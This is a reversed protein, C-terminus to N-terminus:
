ATQARDAQELYAFHVDLPIVNTSRVLRFFRELEEKEEQVSEVRPAHCVLFKVMTELDHCTPPHM